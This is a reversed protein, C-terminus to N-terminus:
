RHDDGDCLPKGCVDCGGANAPPLNVLDFPWPLPGLGRACSPCWERQHRWPESDGCQLDGITRPGALTALRAVEALTALRAVEEALSGADEAPVDCAALVGGPTAAAIVRAEDDADLWSITVEELGPEMEVTYQHGTVASAIRSILIVITKPTTDM